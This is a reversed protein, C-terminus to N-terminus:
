SARDSIRVLGRRIAANIAETRGTVKLKELIHTMHVKVTSESIDLAVGIEKNSKGIAVARLVEKERNTLDPVSVRKALKAGVEPPIWTRGSAVTQICTIIEQVPSEKLFYGAAGSQLARFIDEETEYTTLIVVRASPDKQLIQRMAEIGDMIPMRLDLLVIDPREKEYLDVAEKGNKGEAVLRFNSQRGIVSVLGERVVAHDDALLIGISEMNVPHQSPAPELDSNFDIPLRSRTAKLM